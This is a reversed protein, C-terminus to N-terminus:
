PLNSGPLSLIEWLGWGTFFVAMVVIGVVLLLFPSDYLRQGLPVKDPPPASM